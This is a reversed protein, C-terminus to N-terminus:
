NFIYKFLYFLCLHVTVHMSTTCYLQLMLIHQLVYMKDISVHAKSQLM